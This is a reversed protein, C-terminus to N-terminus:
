PPAAYRELWAPEPERGGKRWRRHLWLWQEPARRIARELARHFELTMRFVDEDEPLTPDPHIPPEIVM